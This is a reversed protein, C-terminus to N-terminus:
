TIVRSNSNLLCHRGSLRCFIIVSIVVESGPHTEAGLCWHVVAVMATYDSDKHTKGLLQVALSLQLLHKLLPSWCSSLLM